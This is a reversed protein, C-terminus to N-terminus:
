KIQLRKETNPKRPQQFSLCLWQSREPRLTWHNALALSIMGVAGAGTRLLSHAMVAWLPDWSHTRFDAGNSQNCPNPCAGKMGLQNQMRLRVSEPICNSTHTSARFVARPWWPSGLQQCENNHQPKTATSESAIDTSYCINTTKQNSSLRRSGGVGKM